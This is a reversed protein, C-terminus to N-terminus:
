IIIYQPFHRLSNENESPIPLHAKEPETREKRRIPLTKELWEM